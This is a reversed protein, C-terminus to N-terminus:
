QVAIYVVGDKNILDGDSPSTPLDATTTQLKLTGDTKAELGNNAELVLTGSSGNIEIKDKMIVKRLINLRAGETADYNIRAVQIQSDNTQDRLSLTDGKIDDAIIDDVTLDGTITLNGTMTTDGTITTTGVIDLTNTGLYLPSGIGEGDFVRKATAELGENSTAGAVTLLDKYSDKIAKDQLSAL